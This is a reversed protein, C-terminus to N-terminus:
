VSDWNRGERRKEDKHESAGGEMKGKSSTRVKHLVPLSLSRRRRGWGGKHELDSVDMGGGYDFSTNGGLSQIM